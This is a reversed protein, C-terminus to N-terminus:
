NMKLSDAFRIEGNGFEQLKGDIEVVLEGSTAVGVIQGMKKAGEILFTHEEQYRYLRSLYQAKLEDVTMITRLSEYAAEIAALVKYLCLDLDYTTGSVTSLSVANALSTDFIQQNVNLGIGVISYDLRDTVVGSEILIGGVKMEDILIDNPWKICVDADTLAEVANCIGVSVAMNLRFQDKVPLFHPELFISFTLNKGPSSLWSKGKQGKGATQEDAMVVTGNSPRDNAILKYLFDNTSTIKPLGYLVKGIFGANNLNQM